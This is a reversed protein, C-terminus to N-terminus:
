VEVRQVAPPRQPDQLPVRALDAMRVALVQRPLCGSGHVLEQLRQRCLHLLGLFATLLLNVTL